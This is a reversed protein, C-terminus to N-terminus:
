DMLLVIAKETMDSITKFRAHMSTNWYGGKVNLPTTASWESTQAYGIADRDHIIGLVGAKEVQAGKKVTGDTHTFIPTIDITDPTELNQWHTVSEHDVMKLMDNHYTTSASVAKMVSLPEALMTIKLDRPDTFRLIPKNNIVTQYKYSREGMYMITTNIFATLWRYFPELNEPKRVSQADLNLGTQANYESIVHIVRDNQGESIVSGVHNVLLGRAVAERASELDNMRETLNMANFRAFEDASSFATDFQDKFTTYDQEYVGTGYFNTQQVEQKKIKWMDVSEGNGIPNQTHSSDYTVPWEFSQDNSIQAAVPSLKRLANGYRPLDMEFSKLKSSYPRASFISKSWMQSIQQMVPDYGTKLATQAVSVFDEPTTITAISKQGTQQSVIENLIASAQSITMNNM